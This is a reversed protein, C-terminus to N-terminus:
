VLVSVRKGNNESYRYRLYYMLGTPGQLPQVSVIKNAILQPYIRRVLPVSIRKFEAINRPRSNAKRRAVQLTVHIQFKEHGKLFCRRMPGDFQLKAILDKSLEDEACLNDHDRLNRLESERVTVKRSGKSISILFEGYEISESLWLPKSSELWINKM